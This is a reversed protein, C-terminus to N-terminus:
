QKNVFKHLDGKSGRRLLAGGGSSSSSGSGTILHDVQEMCSGYGKKSSNSIHTLLVPQLPQAQQQHQQAIGGLSLSCPKSSCITSSGTGCRISTNIGSSGCCISAAADHDKGCEEGGDSCAGDESVKHPKQRQRNLRGLLGKLWGVASSTLDDPQQQGDGELGRSSDSEAVLMPTEVSVVISRPPGGDDSSEELLQHQDVQFLVCCSLM